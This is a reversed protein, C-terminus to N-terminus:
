RDWRRRLLLWAIGGTVVAIVMIAGAAPLAETWPNGDSLDALGRLFWAHPTIYTLKELFGGSSGIPFFTGGLMGLVVAIIAGLNGAGEPTKAVAAVLGMVGVAAAVGAVILVAVGLPAGWDAGLLFPLSTGLVLVAMSVVGLGFSLLGKGVIVSGRPIPAAMLRALTGDREEELLGAVGFQVTFFLFFVAMGAAFYTAPDLQRTAASIDSIIFSNAATAPDNSLSAVFEPSPQVGELAAATGVALRGADVGIAFQEAFSAAIQTSTAADVDGVIEVTVEQGTFVADALGSPLVFYADIVGDELASVAADTDPYGDVQLVGESEAAELAAVFGSSIESGDLDVIGYELGFGTGSVASGFVLNFIFALVLPAGLGLIFVSRDRVRLRLDKLAIRLAASM